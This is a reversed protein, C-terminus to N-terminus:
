DAYCYISLFVKSLGTNWWSVVNSPRYLSDTSSENLLFPYIRDTPKFAGKLEGERDLTWFDGMQEAIEPGFIEEVLYKM